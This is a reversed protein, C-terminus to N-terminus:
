HRVRQKGDIGIFPTGPALKMAEEPSLRQGTPAGPQQTDGPAGNAGGSMIYKLDGSVRPSLIGGVRDESMKYYRARDQLMEFRAGGMTALTQLLKTAQPDNLSLNIIDKAEARGSVTSDGSIAKDIEVALLHGAAEASPVNKDGYQEKLKNIIGNVLPKNDNKLGQQLDLWTRMHPIAVSFAQVTKANDGSALSQEFRRKSGGMSADFNPEVQRAIALLNTRSPDIGAATARNPLDEVSIDGNLLGPVLAKVNPPMKNLFDQGHLNRYEWPIGGQAKELFEGADKAKGTTVL